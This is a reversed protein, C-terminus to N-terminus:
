AEIDLEAEDEYHSCQGAAIGELTMTVYGLRPRPTYWQCEFAIGHLPLQYMLRGYDNVADVAPDWGALKDPQIVCTIPCYNHGNVLSLTETVKCNWHHPLLQM